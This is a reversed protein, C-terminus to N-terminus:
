RWGSKKGGDNQLSNVTKALSQQRSQLRKQSELLKQELHSLKKKRASRPQYYTSTTTYGMDLSRRRGTSANRSSDNYKSLRGEGGKTPTSYLYSADDDKKEDNSLEHANGDEGFGIYADDTNNLTRRFAEQPHLGYFSEDDDFNQTLADKLEDIGGAYKNFRWTGFIKNWKYSRVIQNFENDYPYHERLEKKAAKREAKSGAECIKDCLEIAHPNLRKNWEQYDMNMDDETEAGSDGGGDAAKSSEGEGDGPRIKLKLLEAEFKMLELVRKGAKREMSCFNENELREGVETCMDMAGKIENGDVTEIGRRLRNRSEIKPKIEKYVAAVKNRFPESIGLASAEDLLGTISDSFKTDDELFALLKKHVVRKKKIKAVEEKGAKVLPHYELGMIEAQGCLEILAPVDNRDLSEQIEILITEKEKIGRVMAKADHVLKEALGRISGPPGFAEIADEIEEVIEKKMALQLQVILKLDVTSKRVLFGRLIKQFLVAGKVEKEAKAKKAALRRQLEFRDKFVRRRVIFMRFISQIKVALHQIKTNRFKELDAKDQSDKLFVKTKGVEWNERPIAGAQTAEELARQCADLETVKKYKLLKVLGDKLIGYRRAFIDHPARYSFGAKRIRIAEFLGAYKLQDLCLNGTFKRPEKEHNSKICRIFHPETARLSVMLGDLQSSFQGGLTKLKKKSSAPGGKRNRQAQNPTTDIEVKYLSKILPCGSTRCMSLLTDSTTDKNKEMMGQADYEVGGAFHKVTFLMEYQKNRAYYENPQKGNSAFQQHAKNAFSRDNGKGLNCEEDILRLLGLPKGEILDLCRQNDKFSMKEYPVGENKYMKLEENFIFDNFHFQLKENAYNICLQEFSNHKFVEFGFIDLVGVHRDGANGAKNLTDNVRVVLWDFMRGYLSKALADRTAEANTKNLRATVMSGRPGGMKMMKSTLATEIAKESTKMVQAVSTLAAASGKSIQSNDDGIADFELNGIHLISALITYINNVEDKQFDLTKLAQEMIKMEEEDDWENVHTCGSKKLYNYDDASKLQLPRKVDGSATLLMYFIHYNREMPTQQVVRSKELLYNVIRCGCIKNQNTFNIEMWKGFRSSNNNRLTKANGFAELVPNSDMIQDAVSRTGKKAAGAVTTLYRLVQKATETKGAGSEGSVLVSQSGKGSRLSDYALASTGYVHPEPTDSSHVNNTFFKIQSDDYIGPLRQFPNVAVLISGM